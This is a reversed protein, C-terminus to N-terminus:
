QILLTKGAALIILIFIQATVFLIFLQSINCSKLKLDFRM